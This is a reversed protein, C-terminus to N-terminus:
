SKVDVAFVAYPNMLMTGKLQKRIGNVNNGRMSGDTLIKLCNVNDLMTM